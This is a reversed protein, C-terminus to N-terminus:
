RHSCAIHTIPLKFFAYPSRFRLARLIVFSFLFWINWHIPLINQTFNWIVSIDVVPPLGSNSGIIVLYVVRYPMVLGCRISLRVFYWSVANDSVDISYYTLLWDTNVWLIAIPFQYQSVWIESPFYVCQVGCGSNNEAGSISKADSFVMSNGYWVM